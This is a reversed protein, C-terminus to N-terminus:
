SAWRACAGAEDPDSALLEAFRRVRAHEHIPHATPQRIAYTRSPDVRTVRDTTGGYRSLFEDGRLTLPLRPAFDRDFEAPSLNALYGAWRSDDIRVVGDTPAVRRRWARRARRDDSLGHLRGHARLHLRQGLGRPPDGFRHGLIRDLRSAPRVGPGRCAPVAAGAACRGPGARLDDPGHDRVSGGGRLERGDPLAQCARRGPADIGGPATMAQMTAVELAASSSVGKGEPVRSDILIRVGATSSFAPKAPSCSSCAWWTPRGTRRPIALSGDGPRMTTARWSNGRPRARRARVVAGGRGAGTALSVLKLGPEPVAQVAVLTAERIPWQLVLSGSYDAIGGMVDLRGPARAVVVPAGPLFLPSGDALIPAETSRIRALFAEVDSDAVSSSTPRRSGAHGSEPM